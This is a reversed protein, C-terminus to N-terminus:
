PSSPLSPATLTLSMVLSSKNVILVSFIRMDIFTSIIAAMIEDVDAGANIITFLNSLCCCCFCCLSFYFYM